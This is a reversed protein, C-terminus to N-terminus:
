NINVLFIYYKVQWACLIPLAQGAIGYLSLQAWNLDWHSLSSVFQLPYVTKEPSHHRLVFRIHQHFACFVPM